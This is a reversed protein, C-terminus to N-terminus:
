EHQFHDSIGLEKELKELESITKAGRLRREMDNETKPSVESPIAQTAVQRELTEDELLQRLIREKASSIHRMHKDALDKLRAGPDTKRLARYESIIDASLEDDYSESVPNLEPYEEEAKKIDSLLDAAWKGIQETSTDWPTFFRPAEEYQRKTEEAIESLPATARAMKDIKGELERAKRAEERLRIFERKTKESLADWERESFEGSSVTESPASGESSTEGEQALPETPEEENEQVLSAESAELEELQKEAEKKDSM